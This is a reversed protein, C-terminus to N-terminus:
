HWAVSRRVGLGRLVRRIWDWRLLLFSFSTSSSVGTGGRAVACSPASVMEIGIGLTSVLFTTNFGLAVSRRWGLPLWLVGGPLAYALADYNSRRM